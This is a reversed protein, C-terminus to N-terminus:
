MSGAILIDMPVQRRTIAERGSQWNAVRGGRPVGLFPTEMVLISLSRDARVAEALDALTKRNFGSPEARMTISVSGDDLVDVEELTLDHRIGHGALSLRKGIKIDFDEHVSGIFDCTIGAQVVHLDTVEHIHRAALSRSRIGPDTCAVKESLSSHAEAALFAENRASVTPYKSSHFVREECLGLEHLGATTGDPAPTVVERLRHLGDRTNPLDFAELWDGIDDEDLDEPLWHSLSLAETLVPMVRRRYPVQALAALQRRLTEILDYGQTDPVPECSALMAMMDALTAKSAVMPLPAFRRGKGRGASLRITNPDTGVNFSTFLRLLDKGDGLRMGPSGHADMCRLRRPGVSYILPFDGVLVESEHLRPTARGARKAQQRHRRDFAAPSERESM